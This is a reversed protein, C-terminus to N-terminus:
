SLNLFGSALKCVTEGCKRNIKETITKELRLDLTLEMLEFLGYYSM